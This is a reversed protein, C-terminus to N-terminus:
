GGIKIDQEAPEVQAPDHQGPEGHAGPLYGPVQGDVAGPRTAAATSTAGSGGNRSLVPSLGPPMSRLTKSAM